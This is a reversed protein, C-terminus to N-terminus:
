SIYSAWHMVKLNTNVLNSVLDSYLTHVTKSHFNEISKTAKDTFAAIFPFVM